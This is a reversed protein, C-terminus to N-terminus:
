LGDREADDPFVFDVASPQSRSVSEGSVIAKLESESPRIDHKIADYLQKEVHSREVM